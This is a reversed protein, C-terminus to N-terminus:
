LSAKLLSKWHTKKDRHIDTKWAIDLPLAPHHVGGNPLQRYGASNHCTAKIKVAVPLTVEDTVATLMARHHDILEIGISIPLCVELPVVQLVTLEPLVQCDITQWIGLDADPIAVPDTARQELHSLRPNGAIPDAYPHVVRLHGSQEDGMLPRAKVEAYDLFAFDTRPVRNVLCGISRLVDANGLDITKKIQGAM